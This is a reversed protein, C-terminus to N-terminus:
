STNQRSDSWTTAPSSPQSWPIKLTMPAAQPAPLTIPSSRWAMFWAIENAIIGLRGRPTVRTPSNDIHFPHAAAQAVRAPM